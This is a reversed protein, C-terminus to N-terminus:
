RTFRASREKRVSEMKEIQEKTLITKVQEQQAKM